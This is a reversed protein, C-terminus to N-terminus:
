NLDEYFDPQTGSSSFTFIVNDVGYVNLLDSVRGGGPLTKLLSTLHRFQEDAPAPPFTIKM